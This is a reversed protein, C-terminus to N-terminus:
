LGVEICLCAFAYIDSAPSIRADKGGQLLEPAMFRPSGAPDSQGLSASIAGKLKSLGFDSIRLNLHDDILTNAKPNDFLQLMSHLQPVYQAFTVMFLEMRM